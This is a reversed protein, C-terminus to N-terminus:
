GVGGACSGAHPTGAGPEETLSAEASGIAPLHSDEEPLNAQPSRGQMDPVLKRQPSRGVTVGKGMHVARGGESYESTIRSGLSWQGDERYPRGPHLFGHPRGREQRKEGRM